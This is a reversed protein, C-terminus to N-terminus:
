PRCSAIAADFAARADIPSAARGLADILAEMQAADGLGGLAAADAESFQTLRARALRRLAERNARLRGVEIGQEFHRQAMEAEFRHMGDELIERLRPPLESLITDWYLRNQDEPLAAIGTLAAQAVELDRHALTSLVALEPLERALSPDIVRPIDAYELVVPTLRFRPHGIDIPRRAWQAVGPDPALVLLVAPQGLQARLGTVYVPWSRLKRPDVGLQIEVIVASTLAGDAGYLLVVSDGRYERSAVQSLDVSGLEARVADVPVRTCRRLLEPALEARNRFLEVLLEHQFSPVGVGPALLM